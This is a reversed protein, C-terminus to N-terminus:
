GDNVELREFAAFLQKEAVTHKSKMKAQVSWLEVAECLDAIADAHNALFDRLSRGDRGFSELDEISASFNGPRKPDQEWIDRNAAACLARLKDTFTMCVDESEEQAERPADFLLGEVKGLSVIEIEVRPNHKDDMLRYCAQVIQRDNEYAIGELSDELCKCRNTLDGARRERYVVATITVPGRFPECREGIKKVIAKYAKADASLYTVAVPKRGSTQVVRTRWYSNSSPGLPLVLKITGGDRTAHANPPLYIPKAKDGHGQDRKKPKGTLAKVEDVSMRNM